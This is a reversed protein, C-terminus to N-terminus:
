IYENPQINMYLYICMCVLLRVGMYIHYLSCPLLLTMFKPLFSYYLNCKPLHTPFSTSAPNM